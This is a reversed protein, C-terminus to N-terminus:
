TSASHEALAKEIQKLYDMVDALRKQLVERLGEIRPPPM